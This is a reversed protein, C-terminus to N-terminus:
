VVPDIVHAKAAIKGARGRSGNGLIPREYLITMSVSFAVAIEYCVSTDICGAVM